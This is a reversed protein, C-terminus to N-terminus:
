NVSSKEENEERILMEYIVRALSRAAAEAEAQSNHVEGVELIVAHNHVHQNWRGDERLRVGRSLGPYLEEMLENFERAFRLNERWYPHPLGLKDSGVITMVRATRQGESVITYNNIKEGSHGADRHLDIVMRLKPYNKVLSEATEGSNVYSLRWTPYDHITRNHVVPIGYIDWLSKALAEGVYVVGGPTGKTRDSGTDPQYSESSHTHYIAILPDDGWDQSLPLKAQPKSPDPDDGKPYPGQYVRPMKFRGFPIIQRQLMTIPTLLDVDSSLDTFARFFGRPRGYVTQPQNRKKLFPIAQHLLGRAIGLDMEWLGCIEGGGVRAWKEAGGSMVPVTAPRIWFRVGIGALVFVLLTVGEFVLLNMIARRYNRGPM